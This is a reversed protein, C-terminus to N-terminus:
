RVWLYGNSRGLNDERFGCNNGEEPHRGWAFFTGGSTHHDGFGRTGTNPGRQSLGQNVSYSNAVNTRQPMGNASSELDVTAQSSIFTDKKFDQAEMWFGINGKASSSSRLNQIFSDPMKTTVTDAKTPGETSSKLGVAGRTIHQQCSAITVRAVLVWGGGNRENDVFVKVAVAEGKPKVFYYGSPRGVLESIDVVPAAATNGLGKGNLAHIMAVMNDIMDLERQRQSDNTSEDKEATTAVAIAKDFDEQAKQVIAKKAAAAARADDVAQAGQMQSNKIKM